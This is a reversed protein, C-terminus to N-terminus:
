IYVKDNFEERKYTTNSAINKVVITGAGIRANDGIIVPGFIMSGNGFWVNNGIIAPKEPKSGVFPQRTGICVNSAFVCNEGLLTGKGITIGYPHSFWTSRPIDKFQIDCLALRLPFGKISCWYLRHISKQLVVFLLLFINRIKM